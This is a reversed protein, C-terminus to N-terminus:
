ACREDACSTAGQLLPEFTKRGYEVAQTLTLLQGHQEPHETSWQSLHAPSCFFNLEPCLDTAAVCKERMTPLWVVMGEPSHQIIQGAQVQLQIEGECYACASRIKAGKKLMFPMGLADIACMAYVQPGNALQVRHSTPENSFPYAHTIERDGPNRHVSGRQELEAVLADAEEISSLAFQHQIGELTPSRGTKAFTELIFQHLTGGQPIM